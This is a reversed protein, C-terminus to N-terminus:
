KKRGNIKKLHNELADIKQELESIKKDKELNRDFSLKYKERLEDIEEGQIRIRQELTRVVSSLAEFSIKDARAETIEAEANRKRKGFFYGVITTSVGIIAVIIEKDM